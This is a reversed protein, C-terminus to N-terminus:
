RDHNSPTVVVPAAGDGYFIAEYPCALDAAPPDEYRFREGRHNRLLHVSGERGLLYSPQLTVKGGGGPLDV